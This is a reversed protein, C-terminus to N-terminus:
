ASKEKLPDLRKDAPGFGETQLLQLLEAAAPDKQMAHLVKRFRDHLGGTPGFAVVVSTPLSASTALVKLDSAMPLAKVADYQLRDLVVAGGKGRLVSRLDRLPRFTGQLTFPLERASKDFLLQAAVGPEFLMTGSVPEKVAQWTDPGDKAVVLRWIDSDAGGPRTSALATMTRTDAYGLYYGLGVIGWRPQNQALYAAAQEVQNFYRGRVTVGAGLKSQVYTALADMVPQADESTGPQGPQIIVFDFNETGFAPSITTALFALVMLMNRLM